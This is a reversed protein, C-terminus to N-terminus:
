EGRQSGSVMEKRQRDRKGKKVLLRSDCIHQPLVGDEVFPSINPDDKILFFAISIICKFM